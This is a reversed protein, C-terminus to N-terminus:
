RGMQWQTLADTPWLLMVVNLTLNDRIWWALLLEAAVFVGLSWRFGLRRALIAGAWCCAIDALSNVITDGSYGLAATAERYRDIVWPTNELVEWAAEILVVTAIQWAEPVIRIVYRVVWWFVFGHLLHTISYPDLLHQSTHPSFAERTLLFFEGCACWWLRGMAWLVFTTVVLGATVAWNAARRSNVLGVV